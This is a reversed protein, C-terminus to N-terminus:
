MENGLTNVIEQLGIRIEPSLYDYTESELIEIIHHFMAYMLSIEEESGEKGERLKNILESYFVENKDM